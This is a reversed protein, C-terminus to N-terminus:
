VGSKPYRSSFSYILSSFQNEIIKYVRRSTSAKVIMGLVRRMDAVSVLWMKFAGSPIGVENDFTTDGANIQL